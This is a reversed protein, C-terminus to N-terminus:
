RVKPTHYLDKMKQGLLMKTQAQVWPFFSYTLLNLMILPGELLVLVRRWVPWNEPMPAVLGMRFFTAPVLFVLTITLILSMIDPLSYAFNSQKVYPNVLTVLGFGFTILFVINVLIVRREFHKLVWGIKKSLAIKKNKLFEKVSLPFDIAGWGWRLLQKYLRVHSDIFNKGEVADASYPIYHPVGDFDGDRKFFARWYFITDDVGLTVDWYDADILTQLSASYSSFSDKLVGKTASWDSLSGMTVANAEIRMMVPVRWLNNNFLHVATSYYHNDRRPTTLYLHSLRAIYQPHLVHDADITSFVYNRINEGESRLRGVANRAGWTRNAAAAGVAEGEIGRPHVYVLFRELRSERDGIIERINRETEVAYKEELTYVLTIKKTDYTQNFISDISARLVDAPENVAPILILHKLKDKSEPLTAPDPLSSFDIKNFEAAWDVEIEEKYKRYGLFLGLTHKAALYSWYVTFFTLMYVIAPPYLLGLWIPSTLLTWTTLGLTMELIRHVTKDHKEVFSAIM